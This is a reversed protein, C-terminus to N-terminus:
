PYDLISCTASPPPTTTLNWAYHDGAAIQNAGLWSAGATWLASARYTTGMIQLNTPDNGFTTSGRKGDGVNPWAHYTYYRDGNPDCDGDVGTWLELSWRGPDVGEAMINGTGSSPTTGTILRANITALLLGPNWSCFDITLNEGVYLDPLKKNVCPLGNAKRTIKRDGTDYQPENQVQTFADMVIVADATGSAPVGCSNLKIIRVIEGLIPSECLVPTM